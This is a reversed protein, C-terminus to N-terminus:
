IMDSVVDSVIHSIIHDFITLVSMGLWLGLVGGCDSLYQTFQVSLCLVLHRAIAPLVM